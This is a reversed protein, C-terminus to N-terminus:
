RGCGKEPLVLSAEPSKGVSNIATVSVKISKNPLVIQKLIKPRGSSSEAHSGNVPIREWEGRGNKLIEKLGEIKLDFRKIRGNSFM